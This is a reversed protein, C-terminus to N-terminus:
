SKKRQLRHTGTTNLLVLAFSEDSTTVFASYLLPVGNQFAFPHWNHKTQSAVHVIPFVMTIFWNLLNEQENCFDKKDYLLKYAKLV